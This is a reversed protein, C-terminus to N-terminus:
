RGINLVQRGEPGNLVVQTDTIAVVTYGSITDDVWWVDSNGDLEVIAAKAAGRTIIGSVVPIVSVPNSAPSAAPINSNLTAPATEKHAQYQPPVRFPNKMGTEPMDQKAAIAVATASKVPASPTIAQSDLVNDAAALPFIYMGDTILIVIALVALFIKERQTLSQLKASFNM